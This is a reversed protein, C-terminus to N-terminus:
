ECLAGTFDLEFIYRRSFANRELLLVATCAESDLLQRVVFLGLGRGERREKMTVFPDFLTEEVIPDIGLGNDTLRVVPGEVTLSIVGSKIHEMRIAERLWYDSNLILNDFVQTLKGRNISLHPTGKASVLVEVTIGRNELRDNHFAALEKLFAALDIPERQERLYKLSPSLHALQKRMGAVSSRVHEVYSVMTAKRVEGSQLQRLLVASRKALGDAINHIEHSLAEATLGLSVSEFLAGLEAQLSDWRRDLVERLSKLETAKALEADVEDLLELTATAKGAVAQLRGPHEKLKKRKDELSLAVSGIRRAVDGPSDSPSFGATRDRHENLFDLTGRRL